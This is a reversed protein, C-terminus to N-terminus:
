SIFGELEVGKKIMRKDIRESYAENLEVGIAVRKTGLTAALLTGSGLFPDFIIDGEQSSKMIIAKFLELPKQCIHVKNDVGKTNVHPSRYLLVDLAPFPYNNFLGYSQGPKQFWLIPEYSRLCTRRNMHGRCENTAWILLHRFKFGMKEGLEKFYFIQDSSCSFYLHHGPKLISLCGSLWGKNFQDFEAVPKDDSVGEYDKSKNYPPDTLILDISESPLRGMWTICDGILYPKQSPWWEPLKMYLDGFHMM